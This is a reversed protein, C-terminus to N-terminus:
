NRDIVHAGLRKLAARGISGPEVMPPQITSRPSAQITQASAEVTPWVAEITDSLARDEGSM